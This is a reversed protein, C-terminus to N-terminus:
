RKPLPATQLYPAIKDFWPDDLQPLNRLQGLSDIGHQLRYAIIAQAQRRNIYPHTALEELTAALLNIKRPEYGAKVEFQRAVRGVVLSDLGYVENLQSLSHFGGLRDRFKVIRRSLAPGIGYVDQLQLTDATNIDERVIAKKSTVLPSAHERPSEIQMWPKAKKYWTTDMRYIKLVDERTRFRGGKSRYSAICSAVSQNLGLDILAEESIVNPDFPHFVISDKEVAVLQANLDLLAMLSDTRDPDPLPETGVLMRSLSSGFLLLFILPILILFANTEMRSFGFFARVWQRLQKM